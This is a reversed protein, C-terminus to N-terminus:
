NWTTDAIIGTAESLEERLFHAAEKTQGFAKACAVGLSVTKKELSDLRTEVDTVKDLVNDVKHEIQLLLAYLMEREKEMMPELQSFLAQMM